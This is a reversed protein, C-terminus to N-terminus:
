FHRFGTLSLLPSLSPPPPPVPYRKWCCYRYRERRKEIEKKRKRSFMSPFFSRKCKPPASTHGPTTQPHVPSRQEASLVNDGDKKKEKIKRKPGDGRRSISVCAVLVHFMLTYLPPPSSDNPRWRSEKEISKTETEDRWSPHSPHIDLNRERERPMMMLQTLSIIVSFLEDVDYFGHSFLYKLVRLLLLFDFLFKKFKGGFNTSFHPPDFCKSRPHHHHIDYLLPCMYM